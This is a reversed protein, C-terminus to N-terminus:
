QDKSKDTGKDNSKEKPKGTSLQKLVDDILKLNDQAGVAILVRTDKHFNLKPPNTEGLMHWGTEIATTIDELSYGAELYAALQYYRCVIPEEQVPPKEYYLYWISNENRAGETRFWYHSEYEFYTSSPTMGQKTYDTWVHRELKISTRDLAEFLQAVTVNKVSVAPIKWGAYEDPIIVNLPKDTAKVIAQVLDRPTGGPFDLDFRPLSNTSTTLAKQLDAKTLPRDDPLASLNVPQAIALSFSLTGISLLLLYKKM